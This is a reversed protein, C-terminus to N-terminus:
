ELAYLLLTTLPRSVRNWRSWPRDSAPPPRPSWRKSQQKIPRAALHRQQDRKHDARRQHRQQIQARHQQDGVDAGQRVWDVGGARRVQVNIGPGIPSAMARDIMARTCPAPM